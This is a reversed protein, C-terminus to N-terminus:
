QNVKAAVKIVSFEQLLLNLVMLHHLDLSRLRAAM